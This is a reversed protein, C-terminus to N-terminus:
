PLYKVDLTLRERVKRQNQFVENLWLENLIRLDYVLLSFKPSVCNVGLDKVYSNLHKM